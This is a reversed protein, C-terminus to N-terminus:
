TTRRSRSVRKRANRKKAWDKRDRINLGSLDVAEKPSLPILRKLMRALPKDKPNAEAQRHLADVAEGSYIQGSRADM